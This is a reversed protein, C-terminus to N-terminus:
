DKSPVHQARWSMAHVQACLIGPIRPWSYKGHPSHKCCQKRLRLCPKLCKPRSARIVRLGPGTRNGSAASLSCTSHGVGDTWATLTIEQARTQPAPHATLELVGPGEDRLCTKRDRDPSSHSRPVQTYIPPVLHPKPIWARERLPQRNPKPTPTSPAHAKRAM